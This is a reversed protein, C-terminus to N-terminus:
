RVKCQFKMVGGEGPAVPETIEWRLVLSGGDNPETTFVSKISSTNSKPVFELRTTLNDVITVNGIPRDGTNKFHLEFSVIDGPKAQKKDAMKLIQVRDKTPTNVTTVAQASRDLTTAAAQHGEVTVQVAVDASWAIAADVQEMLWARQTQDLRQWALITFEEQAAASGASEYATSASSVVAEPDLVRLTTLPLIGLQTIPQEPQLATSAILGGSLGGALLPKHFRGPGETKDYQVFNTVRRVAAFRPAYICVRNSAEVETEDDLTDYHVITDQPHLGHIQWDRDVAVEPPYDGGDCIYEGTRRARYIDDQAEGGTAGRPWQGTPQGAPPCCGNAYGSAVPMSNGSARPSPFADQAPGPRQRLKSLDGQCSCLVLTSLAVLVFRWWDTKGVSSRLTLQSENM